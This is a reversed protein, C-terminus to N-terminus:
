TELGFIRYFIAVVSSVLWGFPTLANEGDPTARVLLFARMDRMRGAIDTGITEQTGADIAALLRLSVSRILMVRVILLGFSGLLLALVQVIWDPLTGADVWRLTALGFVAVIITSLALYARIERVVYFVFLILTLAGVCYFSPLGM